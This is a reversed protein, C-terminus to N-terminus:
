AYGCPENFIRGFGPLLLSLPVAYLSDIKTVRRVVETTCCKEQIQMMDTQVHELFRVQRQCCVGSLEGGSLCPGSGGCKPM